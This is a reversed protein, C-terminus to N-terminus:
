DIRRRRIGLANKYKIKEENMRINAQVKLQKHAAVDESKAESCRFSSCLSYQVYEFLFM